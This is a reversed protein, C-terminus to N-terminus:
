RYLRTFLEEVEGANLLDDDQLGYRNKLWDTAGMIQHYKVAKKEREELVTQFLELLLCAALSIDIGLYPENIDLLLMEIRETLKKDVEDM